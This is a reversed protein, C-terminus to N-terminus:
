KKIAGIVSTGLNSIVALSAGAFMFDAATKTLQTVNSSLQEEPERVPRHKMPRRGTRGRRGNVPHVPADLDWINGM